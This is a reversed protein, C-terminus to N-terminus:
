TSPPRRRSLRRYLTARSLGLNRAAQTINGGAEQLAQQILLQENTRLPVARSGSPHSTTGQHFLAPQLAPGTRVLAQLRLGSWLPVHVPEDQRRRAHDVLNSWPMALLEQCHLREGLLQLPLPVWQRAVTNGGLLYGDADLALLGEGEQGLPGGPWNLHLLVAHPLARLLRDEIARTCRLALHLLEPREPVEIGTIDLMGLCQGEPGFVPAGACSYDRLADFFHERQHLWVPGQEALAAGIASTGVGHESLDVGVRGIALARMDQRNVPGQIELVTGAADTLLCFYRMAGVAGVLQAMVPRAAQILAHHREQAHRLAHPGVAEFEVKDGPRQGSAMCRQWSRWLWDAVGQPAPVTDHGPFPQFLQARAQAVLVHREGANPVAPCPSSM